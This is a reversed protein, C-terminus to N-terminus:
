QEVAAMGTILVVDARSETAILVLKGDPMWDYSHIGGSRFKTLQVPESGDLRQLFVNTAAGEANTFTFGDNKPSWRFSSGRSWPADLVPTGGELPEVRVNMGDGAPRWYVYAVLSSDRSVAFANGAYPREVIKVANGGAAPIRWLTNEAMYLVNQGDPSLVPVYEGSGRTLQRPAGGDADVIWLHPSAGAYSGFAVTKGDASISVDASEGDTSLVRPQSEPADLIAVEYKANVERSYVMAGSASTRVGFIQSRRETEVRRGGAPDDVSSLRLEGDYQHHIAAVSRGDATLTLGFYNNLDNTLQVAPGDPFPQRWIQFRGNERQLGTMLLSSGDPLWTVSDIWWWDVNGIDRTAGTVADIEFLKVLAGAPPLLRASVIKKGDPSWSPTAVAAVGFRPVSSLVRAETGDANAVVYHKVNDKPNGREFVFRKGDPSFAPASDVDYIVKRSTGGLAPVVYLWRGAGLAEADRRSYYVYNGDPSFAVGLINRDSREAIEVDSGTAVQRVKLTFMGEADRVAHAVYRGDRSIAANTVNGSSTVRQLKMGALGGSGTDGHSGRVAQWAVVAALALLAVSAVIIWVWPKRQPPLIPAAASRSGSGHSSASTTLEDFEDVIERLEIALDKMSQYRREPDKALCRRIMRRVETPVAPNIEDVPVPKDHLIRHMVDVDSDAEFPRRRTAIEYLITGFSFIDSRHDVVKGAVQEPSMYAVTGLVAGERTEDRVATADINSETASKRISLKALGFDLVKAFGDRTVMINEPKLDRHVINVAHAKALGDAAQAMAGLLTRLDAQEEHIKKKLTAGDILEMAIYHIASDSGAHTAEGIEHITVIHPHNLSSASRAEQMFRRRREDNKVVDPPLIKLAVMRELATDQAKYVEGMGGSGIPGVVTYRSVSVGAELSTAAM